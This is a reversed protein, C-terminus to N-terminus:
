SRIGISGYPPKDYLAPRFSRVIFDFHENRVRINGRFFVCRLAAFIIRTYRKLNFMRFIIYFIRLYFSTQAYINLRTKTIIDHWWPLCYFM